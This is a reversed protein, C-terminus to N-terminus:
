TKMRSFFPMKKLFIAITQLFNAIIKVESVYENQLRSYFPARPVCKDLHTEKGRLEADKGPDCGVAALQLCRYSEKLATPQASLKQITQAPPNEGAANWGVFSYSSLSQACTDMTRSSLSSLRMNKGHKEPERIIAAMGFM